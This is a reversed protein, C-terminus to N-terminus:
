FCASSLLLARLRSWFSCTFCSLKNFARSSSSCIAYASLYILNSIGGTLGKKKRHELGLDYLANTGIQGGYSHMLVTIDHGAEVLNKTVSRVHVTDSNLDANPPRSGNMSPLTPVHVAYGAYELHTTLTHYSQPTHWGGGVVLIVPAQSAM